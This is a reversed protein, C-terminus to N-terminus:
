KKKKQKKRKGKEGKKEPRADTKEEPQGDPLAPAAIAAEETKEALAKPLARLRLIQALGVAIMGATVLAMPIWCLPQLHGFCWNRTEEPLGDLIKYPKDLTFQMLIHVGVCVFFLILPLALSRFGGGRRKYLKVGWAIVLGLMVGGCLVQETCVFFQSLKIHDARALEPLIQLACLLYAACGFCLGDSRGRTWQPLLSVALCIFAALASIGWLTLVWDGWSDPATLPFFHLWAAEVPTDGINFATLFREALRACAVAACLPVALVDLYEGARVRLIVAALFAALCFGACAGVFSFATVNLDCVDTWLTDFMGLFLRDLESFLFGAKACLFGLPLGLGLTIWAAAAKMGRRRLLLHYLLAAGALTLGLAAFFSDTMDVTMM